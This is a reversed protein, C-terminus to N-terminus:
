ARKRLAVFGAGAVAIAALALAAQVVEPHRRAFSRTDAPPEYEPNRTEAGLRGARALPLGLEAPPVAAFDYSPARLAPDGYLLRYPPAFGPAVLLTRPDALATVALGGLPPDDGNAIEVRLYRARARVPVSTFSVSRFRTLRGTGVVAFGGRTNSAAITVPRDFRGTASEVDIRDVPVNSFRLDLEVVTVDGRQRVTSTAAVPRPRPQTPDYAVTAGAITSVGTARLQLYRHDSPPFLATTSRASRAGRVDYIQTESLRSFSRRDDSGLVVVSGVFRSDPIDLEIRDHVRREPGLDILAVAAGNERGRNLLEVRARRPQGLPPRPRWPAQRGRADFIRLDAFGLRSHAYLPGDPELLVPGPQAGLTRTYRFGTRDSTAAGVAPALLLSAVAGHTLARV